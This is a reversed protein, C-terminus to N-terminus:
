ELSQSFLAVSTQVDAYIMFEYQKPGITYKQLLTSTLYPLLLFQAKQNKKKQMWIQMLHNLNVTSHMQLKKSCRLRTNSLTRYNQKCEGEELSPTTAGCHLALSTVKVREAIGVSTVDNELIVVPGIFPILCFWFSFDRKKHMRSPDSGSESFSTLHTFRSDDSERLNFGGTAGRTLLETKTVAIKRSNLLIEMFYGHDSWFSMHNM